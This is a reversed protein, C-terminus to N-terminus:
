VSLQGGHQLLLLPLRLRGPLATARFLFRIEDQPPAVPWETEIGLLRQPPEARLQTNLRADVPHAPRLDSTNLRSCTPSAGRREGTNPNPNALILSSVGSSSRLAFIARRTSSFPQFASSRARAVRRLRWVTRCIRW